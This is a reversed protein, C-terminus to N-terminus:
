VELPVGAAPMDYLLGIRRAFDCMVWYDSVPFEDDPYAKRGWTFRKTEEGYEAPRQWAEKPWAVLYRAVVKESVGFASAVVATRGKWADLDRAYPESLEPVQSFRDVERGGIYLRYEWFDQPVRMWLAPANLNRSLRAMLAGGARLPATPRIASWGGKSLVASKAFAERDAELDSRKVDAGPAVFFRRVEDRVDEPRDCLIGLWDFKHPM